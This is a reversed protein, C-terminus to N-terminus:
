LEVPNQCTPAEHGDDDPPEDGRQGTVHVVQGPYEGVGSGGQQEDADYYQEFPPDDVVCHPLEPVSGFLSARPHPVIEAALDLVEGIANFASHAAADGSSSSM